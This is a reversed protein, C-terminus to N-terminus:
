SVGIKVFYEEIKSVVAKEVAGSRAAELFAPRMFPTARTWYNYGNVMGGNRWYPSPSKGGNSAYTGAYRGGVYRKKKMTDATYPNRGLNRNGYTGFEVWFAPPCNLGAFFKKSRTKTASSTYASMNPENLDKTEWSRGKGAIISVVIAGSAKKRRVSKISPKICSPAKARAKNRIVKAGANLASTMANRRIGAPLIELKNLIKNLSIKDVQLGSSTAM